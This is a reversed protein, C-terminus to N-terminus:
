VFVVSKIKVLSPRLVPGLGSCVENVKPPSWITSNKRVRKLMTLNNKKNIERPILLTSSALSTYKPPQYRHTLSSQYPDLYFDPDLLNLYKKKSILNHKLSNFPATSTNVRSFATRTTIHKWSKAEETLVLQCPLSSVSKRQKKWPIVQCFM